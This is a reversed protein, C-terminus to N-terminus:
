ENKVDMVTLEYDNIKAVVQADEESEQRREGCGASIFILSVLIPIILVRM